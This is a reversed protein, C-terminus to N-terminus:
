FIRYNNMIYMFGLMKKEDCKKFIKLQLQILALNNIYM